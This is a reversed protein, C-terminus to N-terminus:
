LFQQFAVRRSRLYKIRFTFPSVFVWKVKWRDALAGLVKSILTTQKQVGSLLVPVRPIDQVGSHSEVPRFNLFLSSLTFAEFTTSPLFLVISICFLEFLHLFFAFLRFWTLQSLLCKLLGVEFISDQQKHMWLPSLILTTQTKKLITM